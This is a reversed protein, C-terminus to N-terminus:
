DIVAGSGYYHFITSMYSPPLLLHHHDARGYFIIISRQHMMGEQVYVPVVQQHMGEQM